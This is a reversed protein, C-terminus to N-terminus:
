CYTIQKQIIYLTVRDKIDLLWLFHAFRLLILATYADFM